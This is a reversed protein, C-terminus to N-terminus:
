WHGPDMELTQKSPPICLNQDVSQLGGAQMVAAWLQTGAESARKFWNKQVLFAVRHWWEVGNGISTPPEKESLYNIKTGKAM